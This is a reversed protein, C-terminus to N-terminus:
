LFCFGKTFWAPCETVVAPSTQGELSQVVRKFYPSWDHANLDKNKWLLVEDRSAKVYDSHYIWM